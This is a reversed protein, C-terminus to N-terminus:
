KFNKWSTKFERLQAWWNKLMLKDVITFIGFLVFEWCNSSSHRTGDDEDIGFIAALGKRSLFRPEACKWFFLWEVDNLFDHTYTTTYAFWVNSALQLRHRSHRLGKLFCILSIKLFSFFRFFFTMCGIPILGMVEQNLPINDVETDCGSVDVLLQTSCILLFYSRVLSFCAGTKAFTFFYRVLHRTSIELFFQPLQHYPKLSPRFCFGM